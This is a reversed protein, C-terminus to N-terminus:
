HEFRPPTQDYLLAKVPSDHVALATASATTTLTGTAKFLIEGESGLEVAATLKGAGARNVVVPLKGGSITVAIQPNDGANFVEADLEVTVSNNKTFYVNKGNWVGENDGTLSAQTVILNKLRLEPQPALVTITFTAGNANGALDFAAIEVTTTGLPFISGSAHSYTVIPSLTVADSVIAAFSVTAGDTSATEVTINNPPFIVPPTTDVVTIKFSKQTQNNATDRATVVVITEGLSFLTGSAASYTITPALTVTDSASAVPYTVLAGLPSTAETIINGSVTLAPAITDRVNVNFNATAVNGFEDTATITVVTNGVPFLSGSAHSYVVEPNLTANDSITALAYSVNAGSTSQAEAEVLVAAPIITPPILDGINFASVASQQNGALDAVTITLTHNGGSLNTTPVFSFGHETINAPILNSDLLVIVAATDIGSGTDSFSASLVPRASEAITGNSPRIASIVPKTADVLLTGVQTASTAKLKEKDDKKAKDQVEVIQGFLSYSYPGDALQVGATDRGDWAVSASAQLPTSGTQAASTNASLTRVTVGGSSLTVGMRLISLKKNTDAGTGSISFQGRITVAGKVPVSLPDPSDSISNLTVSEQASLAISCFCAAILLCYRM